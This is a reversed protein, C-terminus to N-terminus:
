TPNKCVWESILSAQLKRSYYQKQEIEADLNLWSLSTSLGRNNNERVTDVFYCNNKKLTQHVKVKSDSAKPPPPPHAISEKVMVEREKIIVLPNMNEIVEQTNNIWIRGLFQRNM